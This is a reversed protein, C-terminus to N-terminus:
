IWLSARIYTQVYTCAKILVNPGGIRAMMKNARRVSPMQEDGHAVLCDRKSTGKNIPIWSSCCVGLAAVLGDLRSRLM